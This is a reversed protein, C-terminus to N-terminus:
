ARLEDLSRADRIRHPVAALEGEALTAAIADLDAHEGFRDMLLVRIMASAEARAEARAEASAKAVAKASAREAIAKVEPMRELLDSMQHRRLSEFIHTLLEDGATLITMGLLAARADDSLTPVAIRSVVREILNQPRKTVALALPALDTGLLAEADMATVDVVEYGLSLRAVRYVGTCWAGGRPLIVVQLPPRRHVGYLMAWYLVLRREFDADRHSQVEIHVIVPDNDPSEVQYVLDARVDKTYETPLATIKCGHTDVGCLTTLSTEPFNHFLRKWVGDYDAM